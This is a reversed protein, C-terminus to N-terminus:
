AINQLAKFQDGVQDVTERDTRGVRADADDDEAM